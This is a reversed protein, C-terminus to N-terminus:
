VVLQQVTDMKGVGVEQVVQMAEFPPGDQGTGLTGQDLNMLGPNM